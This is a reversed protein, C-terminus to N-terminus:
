SVRNNKNKTEEKTSEDIEELM